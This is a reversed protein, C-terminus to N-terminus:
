RSPNTTLRLAPRRRLCISPRALTRNIRGALCEAIVSPDNGLAEFIERLMEPQKTDRDMRDMEAPLREASIPKHWYHELVQSERLYDEVKKEIQQASMVADLSPKPKPNEKPWIRHRWYGQEIARQYAVREEFTLTRDSVKALPQSALVAFLTGTVVSSVAIASLFIALSGRLRKMFAPPDRRNEQNM